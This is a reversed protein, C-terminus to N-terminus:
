VGDYVYGVGRVTRILKPFDPLDLKDRLYKMYVDVVNSSSNPAEGWVERLLEARAVPVGPFRALYALLAYERPTLDIQHNARLVRHSAPQLVLASGAATPSPVETSRRLLARLRALLETYSFPKNLCDDAGSELALVATEARNRATLVLVCMHKFRTRLSQLVSIGDIEPLNLDLIVLDFDPRISQLAMPGTHAFEIEFGENRLMRELFRCLIEDDEVILVRKGAALSRSDTAPTTSSTEPTESRQAEQILM